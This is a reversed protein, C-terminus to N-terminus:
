KNKNIFQHRFNASNSRGCFFLFYFIFIINDSNGHANSRKFYGEINPHRYFCTHHEINFYGFGLVLYQILMCARTCMLNSPTAAEQSVAQYYERQRQLLMRDAASKVRVALPCLGCWSVVVEMVSMQWKAEHDGFPSWQKSKKKAKGRQRTKESKEHTPKTKSLPERLDLATM